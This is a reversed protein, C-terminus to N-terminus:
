FVQSFNVFLEGLGQFILIRFGKFGLNREEKRKKPPYM